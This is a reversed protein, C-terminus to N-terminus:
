AMEKTQQVYLMRLEHLSTGLLRAEESELNGATKKELLGLLDIYHKALAPEPEYQGSLPNPFVGLATMAQTSFMSVLLSFNVPPLQSADIMPRKGPAEASADAAPPATETASSQTGSSAADRAADEANDRHKCDEDSDIERPQAPQEQPNM